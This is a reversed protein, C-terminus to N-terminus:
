RKMCKGDFPMNALWVCGCNIVVFLLHLSDYCQACM